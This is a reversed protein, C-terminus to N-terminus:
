SPLPSVQLGRLRRLIDDAERALDAVGATREAALANRALELARAARRHMVADELRRRPGSDLANVANGTQQADMVDLTAEFVKTRDAAKLHELATRTADLGNRDLLAATLAERGDRSVGGVADHLVEKSAAGARKLCDTVETKSGKEATQETVLAEM